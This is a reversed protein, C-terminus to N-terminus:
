TLIKLQRSFIMQTIKDPCTQTINLVDSDDLTRAFGPKFIITNKYIWCYKYQFHAFEINM